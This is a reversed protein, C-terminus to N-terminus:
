FQKCFYTYNDEEFVLEKGDCKLIKLQRDDRGKCYLMSNEFKDVYWSPANSADKAAFVAGKRGDLAPIQLVKIIRTYDISDRKVASTRKYPQWKGKLLNFDTVGDYKETVRSRDGSTASNNNETVAPEIYRAFQYIADESKLLMMEHNMQQVNFTVMGLDVVAKTATYTGRMGMSNGKYWLFENGVLFKIRITDTYSIPENKLSMRKVEKWSGTLNVPKTKDDCFAALPLLMLLLLFIRKMVKPTQVIFNGNKCLM